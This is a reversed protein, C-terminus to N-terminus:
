KWNMDFSSILQYYQQVGIGDYVQKRVSEREEQEAMKKQFFEKRKKLQKEIEVQTKRHDEERRKLDEALKRRKEDM